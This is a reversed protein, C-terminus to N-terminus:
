PHCRSLLLLFGFSVCQSSFPFLFFLALRVLIRAEFIQFSWGGHLRLAETLATNLSASHAHFEQWLARETRAEDLLSDLQSPAIDPALLAAHSTSAEADHGPRQSIM